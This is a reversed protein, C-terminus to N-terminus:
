SIPSGCAGTGYKRVAEAAAAVVKPHNALGLYNNAGLMLLEKGAMRVVPTATPEFERLYFFQNRASTYEVWQVVNACKDFLGV